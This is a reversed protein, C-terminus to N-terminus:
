WRKNWRLRFVGSSEASADGAIVSLVKYSCPVLHAPCPSSLRRYMLEYRGSAEDRENYWCLVKAKRGWVPYSALTDTRVTLCDGHGGRCVVLHVIIGAIILWGREKPCGRWDGNMWREFESAQKSYDCRSCAIVMNGVVTDGGKAVPVVHDWRRM